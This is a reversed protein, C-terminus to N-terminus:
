KSDDISSMNNEAYCKAKIMTVAKIAELSTEGSVYQKILKSFDETLIGGSMVCLGINENVQKRRLEMEEKDVLRGNSRKDVKDYHLLM